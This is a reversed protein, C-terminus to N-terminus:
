SLYKIHKICTTEQADVCLSLDESLEQRLDIDCKECKWKDEPQKLICDRCIVGQYQCWCISVCEILVKRECVECYFSSESDSCEGCRECLVENLCTECVVDGNKVTANASEYNINKITTVEDEFLECNCVKCIKSSM